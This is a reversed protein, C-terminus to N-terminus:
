TRKKRQGSKAAPAHEPEPQAPFSGMPITVSPTPSPTRAGQLDERSASKALKGNDGNLALNPHPEPHVALKETSTESKSESGSLKQHDNNPAAQPPPQTPEPVTPTPQPETQPVPALNLNIHLPKEHRTLPFPLTRAIAKEFFANQNEKIKEWLENKYHAIYYEKHMFIPTNELKDNHRPMYDFYHSDICRDLANEDGLYALRVLLMERDKCLDAVDINPLRRNSAILDDKEKLEQHLKSLTATYTPEYAADSKLCAIIYTRAAHLALSLHSAGPTKKDRQNVCAHEGLTHTLEIWEEATLEPKFLAIMNQCSQLKAQPTMKGALAYATATLFSSEPEKPQYYHAYAAIFAEPINPNIPM